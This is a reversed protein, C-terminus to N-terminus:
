NLLRSKVTPGAGTKGAVNYNGPGPTRMSQSLPNRNGTGVVWTPNRLLTAKSPSYHNPAPTGLRHKQGLTADRQSTGISYHPVRKASTERQPSYAGPGPGRRTAPASEPRRGLMSRKSGEKGVVDRHNYTGPGPSM